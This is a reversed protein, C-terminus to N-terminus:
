SSQRRELAPRNQRTLGWNLIFRGGVTLLAMAVLDSPFAFQWFLSHFSAAQHRMTPNFAMTLGFTSAAMILFVLATLAWSIPKREMDVEQQNLAEPALAGFELAPEKPVVLTM